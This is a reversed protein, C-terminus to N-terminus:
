NQSLLVIAERFLRQEKEAGAIGAPLAAEAKSLADAAARKDYGM